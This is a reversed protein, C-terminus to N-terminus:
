HFIIAFCSFIYYISVFIHQIPENNENYRFMMNNTWVDCHNIAKFEKDNNNILNCCRKFVTDALKIMKESYSNYLLILCLFNDFCEFLFLSHYKLAQRPDLEKWNKMEEGLIEYGERFWKKETDIM